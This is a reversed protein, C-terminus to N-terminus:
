PSLPEPNLNRQARKGRMKPHNQASPNPYKETMVTFSGISSSASMTIMVHYHGHYHHRMIALSIFGGAGQIRLVTAYVRYVRLRSTKSQPGGVQAEPATPVRAEIAISTAPSRTRRQLLRMQPAHVSRLGSRVTLLEQSRNTGQPVRHAMHGSCGYWAM